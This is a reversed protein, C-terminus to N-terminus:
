FTPLAIGNHDPKKNVLGYWAFVRCNLTATGIDGQYMMYVTVGSDLTEKIVKFGDMESMFEFPANGAVIEISDNTWFADPQWIGGTGNDNMLEIVTTDALSTSVNAYAAQEGTLTGDGGESAPRQDWAIPKPFVKLTTGDIVEVVSFTRQRGTDIKNAASVENVGNFRIKDGRVFGATASVTIEASRYDVPVVTGDVNTENGEPVFSQDGSVTIGPDVRGALTPLANLRFTDFGAIDKGVMSKAYAGEPRGSLTGRNALDAAIAEHNQPKLFFSRDDMGSLELSDMITEAKALHTYDATTSQYVLSGTDVVLQAIRKNQRASLTNVATRARRKMFREDRFDDARLQFADNFPDGLSSPYSLELVNGFQGTMDWGEKEPSMQEVQRWVTNSSNQMLPAEFDVVDAQHAMVNNADWLECVEDFMISIGKATSLSM